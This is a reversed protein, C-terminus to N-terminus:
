QCRNNKKKPTLAPPCFGMRGDVNVYIGGRSCIGRGTGLYQFPSLVYRLNYTDLTKIQAALTNGYKATVNIEFKVSCKKKWCSM